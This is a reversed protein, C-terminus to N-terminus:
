CGGLSGPLRQQAMRRCRRGSPTSWTPPYGCLATRRHSKTFHTPTRPSLSTCTCCTTDSRACPLHQPVAAYTEANCPTHSTPTPQSTIRGPIVHQGEIKRKKSAQKHHTLSHNIPSPHQCCVTRHRPIRTWHMSARSQAKPRMYTHHMYTNQSERVAGNNNPPLATCQLAACLIAGCVNRANHQSPSRDISM